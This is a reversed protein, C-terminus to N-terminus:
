VERGYGRAVWDFTRQVAAGAANRFIINFGANTMSTIVKYDGTAMNQDATAIAPTARFPNTFTVTTGAVPCVVNNASELRDPMDITVELTTVRPTVGYALSNLILRFEFGRASYDGIVFKKWATWTAMDDSTRVQLEISWESVDAGDWDAILDVNAWGNGSVSYTDWDGVADVDAWGELGTDTDVYSVYTEGVAEVYATIRSTYVAGLDLNDNFYYTGTSVVSGDGRDFDSMLDVNAYDDISQDSVLELGGSLV